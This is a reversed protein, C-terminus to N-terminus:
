IDTPWSGHVKHRTVSKFLLLNRMHAENDV